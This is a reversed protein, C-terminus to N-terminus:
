LLYLGYRRNDHGLVSRLAVFDAGFVVCTAQLAGISDHNIQPVFLSRDCVDCAHLVLPRYLDVARMAPCM